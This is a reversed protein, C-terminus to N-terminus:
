EGGDDTLEVSTPASSRQRMHGCGGASFFECTARDTLLWDGTSFHAAATPLAPVVCMPHRPHPPTLCSPSNGDATMTGVAPVAPVSAVGALSSIFCDKRVTRSAAAISAVAVCRPRPSIKVGNDDDDTTMGATSAECATGGLSNRDKEARQMVNLYMIIYFLISRSMVAAREGPRVGVCHGM